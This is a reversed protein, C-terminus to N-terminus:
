KNINLIVRASVCLLEYVHLLNGPNILNTKIFINEATVFKFNFKIGSSAETASCECKRDMSVLCNDAPHWSQSWEM